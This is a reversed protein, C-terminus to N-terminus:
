RQPGRVSRLVRWGGVTGPEQSAMVQAILQVARPETLAADRFSRRQAMQQSSIEAYIFPDTGQALQFNIQLAIALLVIDLAAQATVAPPGLGLLQEALLQQADFAEEDEAKAQADASLAPHDEVGSYLAPM